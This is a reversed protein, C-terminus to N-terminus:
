RLREDGDSAQRGEQQHRTGLRWRDGCLHDVRDRLWHRGRVERGLDIHVAAVEAARDGDGSGIPEPQVLVAVADAAFQFVTSPWAVALSRKTSRNDQDASASRTNVRFRQESRRFM